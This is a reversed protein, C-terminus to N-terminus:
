KGNRSKEKGTLARMISNDEFIKKATDRGHFMADNVAYNTLGTSSPRNEAPLKGHAQYWAYSFGHAGIESLARVGSRGLSFRGIQLQPVTYQASTKGLRTCELHHFMEHALILEEAAATPLGNAKAWHQVSDDYIFITKRGSYYESFYRVNGSIKDVKRHDVTLGESKAVDYISEKPYKKLLEQAADVGTQWARDAIPARMEEPIKRYLLDRKLEERSKIRDPFPYVRM